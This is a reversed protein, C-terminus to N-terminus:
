ISGKGKMGNVYSVQRHAEKLMEPRVGLYVQTVSLDSHGLLQRVIELNAGNEVWATAAARRLDHASLHINAEKTRRKLMSIVAGRTLPEGRGGMFLAPHNDHRANHYRQIAIMTQSSLFAYRDKRGKCGTLMVTGGSAERRLGELEGVRCGTDLMFLIVARDRLCAESKGDVTSLLAQVAESTPPRHQVRDFKPPRLKALQPTDTLEQQYLWNAFAKYTRYAGHINIGSMGCDRMDAFLSMVAHHDFQRIDIITDPLRNLYAKYFSITKPSLGRAKCDMLFLSTSAKLPTDQSDRILHDHM